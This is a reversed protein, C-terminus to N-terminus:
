CQTLPYSSGQQCYYDGADESQVGSITLTFDLGSGTGSFRTPVGTWRDDGAYILLKPAEGPKQLYWALNSGISQSATCSITVSDGPSVTQSGPTQTLIIEGFSGLFVSVFMETDRLM